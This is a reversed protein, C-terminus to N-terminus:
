GRFFTHHPISCITAEPTAWPPTSLALNCYMVAELGAAVLKAFEPGGTFAGSRADKAANVCKAWVGQSQATKLLEAARAEAQELTFAVEVYKGSMWDDWFDSFQLKAFVTGTMTGDSRFKRVTRNLAVHGVAIKGEYREGAAETWILLALLTEDDM